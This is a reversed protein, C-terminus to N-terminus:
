LELARFALHLRNKPVPLLDSAPPNRPAAPCTCNKDSETEGHCSHQLKKLVPCGALEQSAAERRIHLGLQEEHGRPYSQGIDKPTTARVSESFSLLSSLPRLERQHPQRPFQKWTFM